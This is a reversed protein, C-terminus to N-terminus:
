VMVTALVPELSVGVRILPCIVSVSRPSKSSPAFGNTVLLSQVVVRADPALQVIWAVRVTRAFSASGSGLVTVAVYM